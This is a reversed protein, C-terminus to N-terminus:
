ISYSEQPGEEPQMMISIGLWRMVAEFFREISFEESGIFDHWMRAFNSFFSINDLTDYSGTIKALFTGWAKLVSLFTEFGTDESDSACAFPPMACTLCFLILIFVAVTRNKKM